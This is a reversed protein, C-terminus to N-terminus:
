PQLDGWVMQCATMGVVVATEARLIRKGFNVSQVNHLQMRQEEDDSFGGEPGIILAVGKNKSNIEPLKLTQIHHNSGPLMSIQTTDAYNSFIADFECPEKIEPIVTRGSQECAAVIVGQWHQMKKELRNSKLKIVSRETYMPQITTVGLEVAKQIAFDMKDSKINALILTSALSSERDVPSYEEVVVQSNRKDTVSIRAKYEGSKGNFLVLKDGEKLRLVQVAHRHNAQTLAIEDGVQIEGEQYFRSVRM